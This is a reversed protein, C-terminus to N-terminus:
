AVTGNILVEKSAINNDIIKKKFIMDRIGKVYLSDVSNVRNSKKCLAGRFGLYDPELPLLVDIDNHNLSGALGTILKNTKALKIFKDLVDYKILTCLSQNSKDETDIMVGKVNSRMITELESIKTINEAFFVVVIKIGKKSSENISNLFNETVNKGFLGIKVYDVGTNATAIIRSMLEPNDPDIDGITASTPLFNDVLCVISRITNLNLAGLAGLKPDKLDIIDVGANLVIRAEEKSTVSALMRTM